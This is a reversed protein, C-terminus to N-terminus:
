TAYEMNPGDNSTADILRGTTLGGDPDAHDGGSEDDIIVVRATQSPCPSIEAPIM